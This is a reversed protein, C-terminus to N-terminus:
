PPEDNVLEGNFLKLTCIHRMKLGQHNKLGQLMNIHIYWCFTNRLPKFMAALWIEFGFCKTDHGHSDFFIWFKREAILGRNGTNFWTNGTRSHFKIQTKSEFIRSRKFRNNTTCIERTVTWRSIRFMYTYCSKTPATVFDFDPSSFFRDSLLQLWSKFFISVYLPCRWLSDYLPIKRYDFSHFIKVCFVWKVASGMWWSIVSTYIHRKINFSM